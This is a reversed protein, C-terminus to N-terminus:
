TLVVKNAEFVPGDQCIKRYGKPDHADTTKCVCAFCAGVGCGMREELSVHGPIPLQKTVAQLMPTPGCTFYHDMNPYLEKTIDTVFGKTGYSGDNTAVYCNGLSQFKEEYFVAAKHQFGLVTTIENGREQLKKGLYYLPPVGVGGGILLIRKNHIAEYPFGNGLPALVNIMQGPKQNTLWETGQGIVKYVISVVDDEVNAISLPRRLVHEWGGGTQVHVFQGPTTMAEVCAGKLEVEFTAEAIQKNSMVTVAEQHIM